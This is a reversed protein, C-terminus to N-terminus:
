EFGNGFIPDPLDDLVIRALRQRSVGDVHTFLGGVLLRNASDPVMVNIQSDFVPEIFTTDHVGSASLRAVRTTTTGATGWRIGGGILIRGDARPVVHDIDSYRLTTDVFMPDAGGDQLLRAVCSVFQGGVGGFSGGLVFGGHGDSAIHSVEGIVQAAGFGTDDAGSATLRTVCYGFDACSDLDDGHYGAIVVAGSPQLALAAIRNDLAPPAFGSDLTGSPLLKALGPRAQGSVSDFGGAVLIRGNAQLALHSIGLATWHDIGSAFSSDVSGNALLRVVHKAAAGNATIFDGAVLIRGDPQVVIASVGDDFLPPVFDLDLSGNDLLRALAFRPSGNVSSFDGGVLIRGDPQLAVAQVAGNFTPTFGPDLTQAGSAGAALMGFIACALMGAHFSLRRLLTPCPCFCSM